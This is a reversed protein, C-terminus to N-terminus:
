PIELNMVAYVLAQWRNRDQVLDIWDMGGNWKEFLWKLIIRGDVGPNKLHDGLMLNKGKLVWYAGKREGMCAAHGAWRLRRSKIVWMINPSSHLACLDKNHLRRWEGTSM